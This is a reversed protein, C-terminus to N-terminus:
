QFDSLKANNLFLQVGNEKDKYNKDYIYILRFLCSIIPNDEEKKIVFKDGIIDIINQFPKVSSRNRNYLIDEINNQHTITLGIGIKKIEDYADFNYILELDEENEVYNNNDLTIKNKNYLKWFNSHLIVIIPNVIGISALLTIPQIVRDNSFLIMDIPFETYFLLVILKLLCEYSWVIGITDIYKEYLEIKITGDQLCQEPKINIVKKLWLFTSKGVGKNGILLVKDTYKIKLNLDNVYNIKKNLEKIPKNLEHIINQKETELENIIKKLDIIENGLNIIKSELNKIKTSNRNGMFNFIEKLILPITNLIPTLIEANVTM